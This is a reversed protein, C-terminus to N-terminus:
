KEVFELVRQLLVAVEARTTNDMPAILNNKGNVLGAGILASVAEKAYDPVSDFDEYEPRIIDAGVLTDSDKLVRYVMLMMDCRKINERPAFKNDGIGGVLGTNRAIALERAFYDTDSVDAFNETNDSEKEFARVLLIAFDARTINNAPSYTNESTGKIIGKDALANIADAAWAHAGLDTFRVDSETPPLIIDEGVNPKDTDEKDPTEPKTTTDGGAGGGGGSTSGQVTIAFHITSERGESDRVTIAVHNKGVQSATPKWTFVGTESDLSAGRPLSTEVFELVEGEIPSEANITMTVISGASASVNGPNTVRPPNTDTFSMPITFKQNAAIDYIYGSNVDNIDKHGRVLSTTGISLRVTGDNNKSAGDIEYAANRVGDNSIYIYKGVLSEADDCSMKVDIYNDFTLGKSFDAVVGTYRAPTGTEEGIFDGDNVYRYVVSSDKRSLVGIAGRFGFEYIVSGDEAKDTVTFKADTNTSYIIYDVRGNELEVKIARVVDKEGLMDDTTVEVANIDRIYHNNKYPEFVTTYLTDLADGTSERNVLVYDLTKPIAVNSTRQPVWGATIVVEDPIFDNVQTMRLKVGDSSNSVKRYDKVDFEVSFKGSELNTDRRVKGMWSYGRPYVTNYTGTWPSNPDEGVPWKIDAYSGLYEGKNKYVMEEELEGDDNKVLIPYEGDEPAVQAGTVYNGNEDYVSTFDLGEAPYANEAQSHFSYSHHTGGRVRFFDVTYAVDDSAEVVVATRRYESTENYAHPIEADMVKVKGADEFHLPLGTSVAITNQDKKNVHVTNHSITSNIWQIRNPQYTKEEPEGLDPAVDFGYADMGLTLGDKHKHSKAGGYYIWTDRLTNVATQSTADKSRVGDRLIALGYGTMNISEQRYDPDIRDLIEQQIREPNKYYIGYNLGDVKFGNRMYLYNAIKPGYVTDKLHDFADYYYSTYGSVANNATSGYDGIALTKTEVALTPILGVFLEAFKPNDYLSFNEDGNYYALVGAVEYLNQILITNYGPASENNNGDRDVIDVLQTMLSGGTCAENSNPVTDTAYIFEIMESTLPERDRVIAAYALANQKMGFNGNIDRRQIAYFIEDLIGLEWNDWIKEPTSKDNELGRREAEKSLFSIVESDQLMPFFADCALAFRPSMQSDSINGHTKGTGKHGDNLSYKTGDFTRMDYSPYLDALRDLLIAGALGYKRDGTFLYARTLHLIADHIDDHLELNYNAVYTHVEEVSGSMRGPKYGFGDDVGWRNGDIELPTGNKDKKRPDKNYTAQTPDRLEPYLSNYLYGEPNGYGYFEYWEDSFEESPAVCNCEEGSEHFLMEHHLKRARNVDFYGQQDRGLEYFSEFDNSPFIRKCVQCQVKWPRTVLNTAFGSSLGGGYGVSLDADCYRCTLLDPDNKLGVRTTRPIGEGPMIEYLFMYTELYKDGYGKESKQQSKAWDYKSVNELIAERMEYTYYTPETKRDDLIVEVSAEASVTEGKFTASASVTATGVSLATINGSGDVSVIGSPTTTYSINESPVIVTNGSRMTVTLETAAKGTVYMQEPASLSTEAVGTNDVVKMIMESSATKGTEDVVRVTITAEGEGMATLVGDESAKVVSTDSSEVTLKYEDASIVSGDLRTAIVEIETSERVVNDGDMYIALDTKDVSINAYHMNNAGYLKLQKITMYGGRNNDNRRFVLIYEGAYDFELDGLTKTKVLYNGVAASDLYDVTGIYNEETLLATIEDPTDSDENKPIIYLDSITSARELVSYMFEAVYRGAAPVKIDFAIWDGNKPAQIRTFSSVGAETGAYMFVAYKGPIWTPGTSNYQWTGEGDVGTYKYTIGRVDEIRDSVEPFQPLPNKTSDWNGSREFFNYQTDVGSFEAPLKTVTFEKKIIVPDEDGFSIEATIETKGLGKLLLANGSTPAEAVSPDSSTYKINALAMDAATGDSMIGTPTVKGGSSIEMDAYMLLTKDGGDLIINGVVGYSSGQPVRFAVRHWGATLNVNGIYSPEERLIAFDTSAASKCSFSNVFYSDSVPSDTADLPSVYVKEDCGSDDEGHEMYMTYIGGVPVYINFAMWRNQAVRIGGKCYSYAWDPNAQNQSNSNYEWFGFNSERTLTAFAPKASIKTASVDAINYVLKYGAKEASDVIIGTKCSVERGGYSATVTIDTRGDEVATIEGNEDISILGPVDPTYSLTVDESLESGDNMFGITSIKATEDKKIEKKSVSSGIYMVAKSDADKGTLIFKHPYMNYTGSRDNKSSAHFVLYYEGGQEVTLNVEDSEVDIKSVTLNANEEEDNFFSIGKWLEQKDTNELVAALTTANASAPLLYIDGNGGGTRNKHYILKASYKGAYPINIKIASYPVSATSGILVGYASQTKISVANVGAFAWTGATNKYGANTADIVVNNSTAGDIQNFDYVYSPAAPLPKKVKISVEDTDSKDGCVGTVTITTEGEALATVKGSADVSVIGSDKPAYTYTVEGPLASGDSLAATASIYADEGVEIISSSISADIELDISYPTLTIKSLNFAQYGESATSIADNARMATRNREFTGNPTAFILAYYGEKGEPVTVEFEESPYTSSGDHITTSDHWGLVVADESSYLTNVEGDNLTTKSVPVFRVETHVGWTHAAKNFLGLNYKGAKPIKIIVAVHSCIGAGWNDTGKYSNSSAEDFYRTMYLLLRIGDATVESYNGGSSTANVAFRTNALYWEDSDSGSKPTIGEFTTGYNNKLGQATANLTAIKDADLSSTTLDYTYLPAGAAEVSVIPIVPLFGVMMCVVLLFSLVKKM